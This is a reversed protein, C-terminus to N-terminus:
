TKGATRVKVLPQGSEVFAGVERNFGVLAEQKSPSGTLYFAKLLEINLYREFSDEAIKSPTFYLRITVGNENGVVDVTAVTVEAETTKSGQPTNTFLLELSDADVFQNVGGSSSARAGDAEWVGLKALYAQVLAENVEYVEYDPDENTVLISGQKKLGVQKLLSGASTTSGETQSYGVWALFGVVVVAVTLAVALVIRKQQVEGM